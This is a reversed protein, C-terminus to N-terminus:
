RFQDLHSHSLNKFERARENLGNGMDLMLILKYGKVWLEMAFGPKIEIILDKLVM